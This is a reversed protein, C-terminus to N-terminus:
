ASGVLAQAEEDVDESHFLLCAAPLRDEQPAPAVVEPVPKFSVSDGCPGAETVDRKARPARLGEVAADGGDLCCSAPEPPDVSVDAVARGVTERVRVAVDELEEVVGFAVLRGLM